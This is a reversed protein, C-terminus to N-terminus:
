RSRRRRLGPSSPVEGAMVLDGGTGPGSFSGGRGRRTTRPTSLPTGGVTMEDESEKSMVSATSNQSLQSDLSKKFKRMVMPSYQQKFGGDPLRRQIFGEKIDHMLNNMVVEDEVDEKEEDRSTGQFSGSRRKAQETERQQRRQEATKEQEKRKDNDMLAKKFNNIFQQFAKFCEEIRFSKPDECFFEALEGQIKSLDEMANKLCELEKSAYPLFEEMQSVVDSETNTNKMQNTIKKVQSDLKNMDGNLVEISTKSAEELVALDEVVSLLEPQTQEAQQAVYHLLNMGPKNSRIDTLKHLSSIKMGAANGAYGGSNLFNGAVLMLYLLNQLKPNSMLEEGATLMAEISPELFGMNAEFEAKLLLCEVRLRYNKVSILHLIFNEANGLKKTDGEWSRLMEIEDQEPLIKMLGKLKEPEFDSFDGSVVMEIIDENSSRFQRLFININLSRKGDLLNVESMEKKKKEGSVGGEGKGDGSAEPPKPAVLCFLNEMDRFDIPASKDKEFTKAMKTWINNKGFIKNVPLKNWAFTKMKNKPKPTELQPLKIEPAPPPLRPGGPPPPPPAGGMPPPPPPAGGPPPPPPPPGGGPPPPPPPPGGGPPPPPPPAPGTRPAPPPPPPAPAPTASTPPATPAGAAPTTGGCTCCTNQTEFSHKRYEARLGGDM